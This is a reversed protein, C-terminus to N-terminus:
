ELLLILVILMTKKLLNEKANGVLAIKKNQLIKKLPDLNYNYKIKKKYFFNYKSTCFYFFKLKFWNKFEKLM